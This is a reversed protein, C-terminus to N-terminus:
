HLTFTHTRTVSTTGSVFTVKAQVRLRHDAKVLRRGLGTLSVHVKIVAASTATASGSGILRKRRHKRRGTTVYWRVSARGAELPTWSFTYGHSKRLKKLHSAAGTPALLGSLSALLQAKTWPVWVSATTVPIGNGLVSTPTITFTYSDGPTLGTFTPGGTTGVAQMQGGRGADTLDNATTNYGTIPLGGTDAPTTWAVQASTGGVQASPSTPAAPADLLFPYSTGSLSSYGTATCYDTTSCAL